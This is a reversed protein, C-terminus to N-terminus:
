RAVGCIPMRGWPQLFSMSSGGSELAFILTDNLAVPADQGNEPM